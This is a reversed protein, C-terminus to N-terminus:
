PEPAAKAREHAVQTPAPARMDVLAIVFVVGLTLVAIAIMLGAVSRPPRPEPEAAAPISSPEM